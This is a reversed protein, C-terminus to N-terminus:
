CEGFGDWCFVIMLGEVFRVLFWLRLLLVLRFCGVGVVYIRLCCVFVIWCLLSWLVM